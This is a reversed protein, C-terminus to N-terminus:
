LIAITEGGAELAAKHALADIGFALGSVVVAGARALDESLQWAAQEGYPTYKRSGVVAVMPKQATWDYLGRSYLVAPADPIERLLLPYSDDVVSFLSIDSRELERAAEDLRAPTREKLLANRTKESLHALSYFDSSSAKWLNEASGFHELLAKLSKNGIGEITRLSHLSITEEM